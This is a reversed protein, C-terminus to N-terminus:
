PDPADARGVRRPHRAGAAVGPARPPPRHGGALLRPPRAGREAPGGRRRADGGDAPDGGGDPRGGSRRPPRRESPRRRGRVHLARGGRLDAPAGADRAHGRAGAGRRLDRLLGDGGRGPDGVGSRRPGGGDDPDGSPRGTRRARAERGDPADADAPRLAGDVVAHRRPFRPALPEDRGGPAPPRPAHRGRGGTGPCGHRRRGRRPAHPQPARGRRLGGGPAASADRGARGRPRRPLAARGGRPHHSPDADSYPNPTTWV